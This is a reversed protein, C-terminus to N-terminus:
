FKGRQASSLAIKRKKILSNLKKCEADIKDEDLADKSFLLELASVCDAIAEDTEVNRSTDTFRLEEALSNIVKSYNSAKEDTVIASLRAVYDQLLSVTAMKKRDAEYIHKGASLLVVSVIAAFAIVIIQLAWFRSLKFPLYLAYYISIGISVIAYASITTIIGARSFIQEPKEAAFDLVYLSGFFIVEAFLIFSFATRTSVNWPNIVLRGVISTAAIAIIAVILLTKNRRNM